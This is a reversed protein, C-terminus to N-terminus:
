ENQRGPLGCIQFLDFPIVHKWIFGLLWVEIQCCLEFMMIYKVLFDVIMGFNNSDLTKQYCIPTINEKM